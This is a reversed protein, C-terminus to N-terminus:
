PDSPQRASGSPLSLSPPPLVRTSRPLPSSLRPPSSLSCLLSSSFRRRPSTGGRAATAQAAAERAPRVRASPLPAPHGARPPLLCPAPHIQGSPLRASRAPSPARVPPPTSPLHRRCIPCPDPPTRSVPPNLVSLKKRKKHSNLLHALPYSPCNCPHTGCTLVPSSNFDLLLHIPPCMSLFFNANPYVPAISSKLPMSTVAMKKLSIYTFSEDLRADRLEM